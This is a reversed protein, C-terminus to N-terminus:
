DLRRRTLLAVLLILIAAIACLALTNPILISPIDGVLFLTQLCAIFYRAPIFRTVAQIVELMSSIEFMFGSLLFGPLFGILLAIQAAFFQNKAMTSILLGLALMGVLFISSILFLWGVSGRYPTQFVTVASIVCVAMSIMGLLYYPALKGILLEVIGIPTAMLAEM